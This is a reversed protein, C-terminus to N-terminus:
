QRHERAVDIRDAPDVPFLEGDRTTAELPVEDIAVEFEAATSDASAEVRLLCESIGDVDDAVHIRLIM